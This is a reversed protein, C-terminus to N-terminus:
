HFRLPSFSRFEDRSHDFINHCKKIHCRTTQYISMLVESSTEADTKLTSNILCPRSKELGECKRRQKRWELKSYYYYYYYYYHYYYTNNNNNYRILHM